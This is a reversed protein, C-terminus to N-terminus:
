TCWGAIIIREGGSVRNIKHEFGHHGTAFIIATGFPPTPITHLVESVGERTRKRMELRGGEVADADLTLSLSFALVRSGDDHWIGDEDPEKLSSRISIIFEIQTFNEYKRLEEFIVGGPQTELQILQDVRVWDRMEIAHRLEAPLEIPSLLYGERAITAKASAYESVPNIEEAPNM